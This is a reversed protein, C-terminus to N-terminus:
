LGARFIIFFLNFCLFINQLLKRNLVFRYLVYSKCLYCVIRLFFDYATLKGLKLENTVAASLLVYM